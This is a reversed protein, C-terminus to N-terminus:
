VVSKRDQDKTENFKNETELLSVSKAICLYSGCIKDYFSHAEERVSKLSKLYSFKDKQKHYNEIITLYYLIKDRPIKNIM